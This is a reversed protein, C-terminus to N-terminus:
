RYAGDSLDEASAFMTRVERPIVIAVRALGPILDKVIELVKGAIEAAMTSM